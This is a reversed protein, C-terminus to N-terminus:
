EAKDTEKQLAGNIVIDALKEISNRTDLLELMTINARFALNFWNRLEAAILSDVGYDAVTKATSVSSGDISLMSAVAAVIAQTVLAHTKSQAESGAQICEHFEERLRAMASSAVGGHLDDDQNIGDKVHKYADEFARMVVSVRGDSYWRPNGTAATTEPIQLKRAAMAAPDLCAIIGASSLLDSHHTMTDLPSTKGGTVFAVELTRLFQHETIDLVKNRQMMQITTPNRGIAGVDSILGYSVTSAPLGQSLRHRAFAEQFNNAATYASQTALALVSELSTTMVFFDLPLLATAEHLYKTGHVKAALSERWQEITLRDFSVDQLSMAAHILGKVLRGTSLQSVTEQVQERVGVDCKMAIVAVGHVALDQVLTRAEPSNAGSRSLVAIDRAGRDAMWRIISRGLGGLGGTIIYRAEPDFRVASVIPVMQVLSNPDEFSVVLKGIHTGKSFGLLAQDLQSVDWVTFPRIPGVKGERYYKDVAQMLSAGLAADAELVLGLDFSAFTISRQFLELGLRKSELVDMRGVDILRGLPALAKFSAYLAEDRVTSLIVDFGRGGTVAVARELAAVDRSSFIHSAPVGMNETLFRAKEPTGVTAFVDAGRSQALRIAALGLGGTASQILVKEGKKLVTVHDFAYVATMYVLPMTAVEIMNDSPRLMHAFHSPVRTCNGFHGRGMGYVRDGVAFREVGSGVKTIVGSYESSLNNADFRGSSIGLDKWNLGVAAVKVEIWDDLLHGWLETYPRFYLSSLIGPTEFSARIPGQSDLPLPKARNPPMSLADLQDSLQADPMVRSTWICGDKWAFERDEVEGSSPSRLEIEKDVIFRVLDDHNSKTFDIDEIDISLVRSTPNETGITRLLGSVLAGDPNRGAVLGCSTIWIMTAVSRALHQFIALRDADADMLLNEGNLFAIVHSGPLVTSVATDLTITSFPIGQRKLTKTVPRLLDPPINILYVEAVEKKKAAPCNSELMTSLITSATSHPQPYDELVVEVGSFGAARLAKDWSVLDLFPSDIRGDPVGDWYGTLTGLVLGHGIANKTNEVLVLKGGPKLLKRCNKLTKSITPTAHLCQSAIVVDYDADHGQGIPDKEIDLVAYNIDHFPALFERAATLFGPTIDTFTYQSYRKIGTAHANTLTKLTVRTAGGTGAGLELIKQHPNAHGLGDVLRELQPYAGTMALGTEYLATLLGGEMLTEVGTRRKHLIDDMNEHLLKAIRVEVIDGTQSYLSELWKQREISGLAKAELMVETMDQEVRRSVWALFYQVQDSSGETLEIHDSYKNHIDVVILTAISHISHFLDARDVNEQPPPFLAQAQGCSLTRIDPKWVMRMLPSTFPQNYSLETDQASHSDGYRVCRLSELDLVVNGVQDHLQIKAYAGRLGRLEGQAVGTAWDDNQGGKLYMESINVPVFATAAKELQGGYCAILGLQFLADLSAPHLPYTSEVGKSTGVTPSLALKARAVNQAPDAKIDSLGRFTPGYGLGISVFKAYWAETNVNRADLSTELKVISKLAGVHVKIAGTCHETWASSDPTVSSVSFTAWTPSKATANDVLEMSVLIEVGYSDEPIKLASKISVNRLSYGIIASQSSLECHAQFAAEIGISIYAAAPLVADPILRHDALWPVDDVRLINRWQPRLKSAGPLKSGLLDHQVVSRSRYEKSIRSEHYSVPGYAYQYPPLDIAPCGHIYGRGKDISNVAVLDVDANLGFLTGCLQLLTTQGNTGRVLSGIYPTTRGLAKLTQDVPGRLAHHPGIEVFADIPVDESAILNSVADCFRVPSVLNSMWYSPTTGLTATGKSPTVSSVWRIKSYLQDHGSFGEKKIIDLHEALMVSYSGGLPSMHHSHYANGGTNLTRNFVGDKELRIALEQVAEYDGSLTVSSPSNIAGIKVHAEQGQLYKEVVEAGLGVALMLGNRKNHAVTHGRCFATSIAQAASIRGAAYAAAIEGSSHGVVATPRISWSALLDVLGVQLATCVTQSVLPEDILNRPCDGLLIDSITWSTMSPSLTALVHELYHITNRFVQYQFLKRGMAHWQAGQGTFVFGLRACNAPSTFVAQQVTLGSTPSDKDVIRFSRQALLSRKTALTYAVDALSHNDLVKSLAIINLKLSAENHASFPLLVAQRTGAHADATAVLKDSVPYHKVPTVDEIHHHHNSGNGNSVNGNSTTGNITDHLSLYGPVTSKDAEVMGPKLYGPLVNRVHDIICHGNAGGYGFSNISARRLKGQPWPTIETLIKVKAKDFDIAPNLNEIGISPPIVGAELALVVKMIGALASASETHGLNTKVSGLYLLDDKSKVPSFVNGIASVEVPDGVPTGTGHCEFYTTDKLPLEGANKYAARIVAEQGVTSPHTIGGTRGNANIATGKVFARIPAKNHIATSMKKLYIAAFGEGRAYGDASADFTHCASTASLAGLKDMMIQMTPDFIWNSAAVIASECDGNNIAQVALHLAYMSSSCATDLTMSPGNLNFIYSIRNSLLSLSSGTTVYPRPHDPDRSQVVTHETTFNGVFVGTRSGSFKDWTEGANEFAEYIVELLKRQSADMTEVELPQIGFFTPDFLRADEELLFAGRTAFSGPHSSDPHYFGKTSFRHDSFERYGSRKNRLLDWLAPADRVGGPWRCGMGVIAVPEPGKSAPDRSKSGMSDNNAM